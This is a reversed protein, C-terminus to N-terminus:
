APLYGATKLNAELRPAVPGPAGDFPADVLRHWAELYRSALMVRVEDPLSPPAGHGSFGREEILWQRLNEKDLMRQPRRERFREEYADAIWYRSSDPTHIEDIVTLAGSANVGLEYKTDVLILGRKAARERGREFLARAAEAAADFATATMLGADLIARRSTPLDHEGKEAKTSPTLMPADLREDKQFDKRFDLEYAEAAGSELDRWLSGTVYARMVFEVPYAECKEAVLVNPDPSELVHNPVVDETAAFGDLAMRNLIEGKFPITGLVRDFASVRDTTVILLRDGLDYVDRVKGEYRTGIGLETGTLTHDLQAYLRDSM